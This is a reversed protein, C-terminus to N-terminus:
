DARIDEAISLATDRDTEPLIVAFEEGGFRAVMDSSREAHYQLMRAVRILCQDGAAHGCSDNYQKFFDIDLFLLSLPKRLRFHRNWGSILCKDMSRRIFIGTLGDTDVLHALKQNSDELQEALRENEFCIELLHALRNHYKLASVHMMAIYIMFLSALEFFGGGTQGLTMYTPCTVLPLYFAPFAFFYSLHTNFAGAIIGPYIVFLM